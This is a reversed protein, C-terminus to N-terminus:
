EGPNLRCRFRELIHANFFRANAFAARFATYAESPVAPKTLIKPMAKPHAPAVIENPKTTVFAVLDLTVLGEKIRACAKGNSCGFAPSSLWRNTTM